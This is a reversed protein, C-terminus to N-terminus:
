KKDKISVVKEPIKSQLEKVLERLRQIEVEKQGIISFLDQSTLEKM